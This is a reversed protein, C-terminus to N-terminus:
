VNDSCVCPSPPIDTPRYMVKYGEMGEKYKGCMILNVTLDVSKVNIESKPKLSQTYM